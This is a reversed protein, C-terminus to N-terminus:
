RLVGGFDFWPARAIRGLYVLPTQEPSMAGDNALLLKAEKRYQACVYFESLSLDGNRLAIDSQSKSCPGNRGMREVEDHMRADELDLPAPPTKLKKSARSADKVLGQRFAAQEKSDPRVSLAGARMTPPRPSITIELLQATDRVRVQRPQKSKTDVTVFRFPAEFSMASLEVGDAGVPLLRVLSHSADVMQGEATVVSGDRLVVRVKGDAWRISLVDVFPIPDRQPLQVAYYDPGSLRGFRPADFADGNVLLVHGSPGNAHLTQKIRGHQAKRQAEARQVREGTEAAFRLQEPQFEAGHVVDVELRAVPTGRASICRRGPTDGAAELRGALQSCYGEYAALLRDVSRTVEAQSGQVVYAIRGNEDEVPKLGALWERCFLTVDEPHATLAGQYEPLLPRSLGLHSLGGREACGVLILSCSLARLLATTWRLTM